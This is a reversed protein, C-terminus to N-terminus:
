IHPVRADSLQVFHMFESRAAAHDRFAGKLASTYTITGQKQVGRSEMCLHRCRLVVGVAKPNLASWLAEAIDSTLREQVQLRRAFIEAVRALKSLGIIRGSPIYGIHCVGFFPTIHHECLSYIPIGGQFVMEDYSAAGDEFTKLVDKPDEGAGQTWFRLAKWVRKPTDKLGERDPNPDINGILSRIADEPHIVSKM